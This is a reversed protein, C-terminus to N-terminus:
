KPKKRKTKKRKTTKKLRNKEEEESLHWLKHYERLACQRAVAKMLFLIEQSPSVTKGEQADDHELGQSLM